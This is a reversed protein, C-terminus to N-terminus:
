FFLLWLSLVQTVEQKWSCLWYAKEFKRKTFFQFWLNLLQTVEKEWSNIWCTNEFEFLIYNGKMLMIKNSKYWIRTFLYNGKCCFDTAKTIISINLLKREGFIIKNGKYRHDIQQRKVLIIKNGIYWYRLQQRSCNPHWFIWKAWRPCM